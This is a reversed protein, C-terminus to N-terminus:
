TARDSVWKQQIGCEKLQRKENNSLFWLIKHHSTLGQMYDIMCLDWLISAYIPRLKRNRLRWM